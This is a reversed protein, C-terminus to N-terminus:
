AEKKNEKITPVYILNTYESKEEVMELKNESSQDPTLENTHTTGEDKIL